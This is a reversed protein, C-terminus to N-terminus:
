RLLEPLESDHTFGGGWLLGDLADLRTITHENVADRRRRLSQNPRHHLPRRLELIYLDHVQVGLAVSRVSGRLKLVTKM